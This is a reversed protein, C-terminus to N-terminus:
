ARSPPTPPVVLAVLPRQKVEVLFPTDGDHWRSTKILQPNVERDLRHQAREAAEFADDRDIDGIVLVDIDGPEPGVEGSYRAAWSGYILLGELGDLASFEQMIVERPGFAILVLDRLPRYAPGATNPGLLRTRGVRSDKLLGAELLREVERHVTGYPANLKAALDSISRQGPSLMVAALIEAQVQSRFIAMLPPAPPKSM